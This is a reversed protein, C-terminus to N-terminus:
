GVVLHLAREARGDGSAEDELAGDFLRVADSLGVELNRELAGSFAAVKYTTAVFFAPPAQSYVRSSTSRTLRTSRSATM